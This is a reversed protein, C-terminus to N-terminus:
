ESVEVLNAAVLAKIDDRRYKMRHGHKTRPPMKGAAQWRRVTRVTKGLLKAAEKIPILPFAERARRIEVVIPDNLLAEDFKAKMPRAEPTMDCKRALVMLSAPASRSRTVSLPPTSPAPAARLNDRAKAIIDGDMISRYKPKLAIEEASLRLKDISKLFRLGDTPRDVLRELTGVAGHRAIMQYVRSGVGKTEKHKALLRTYDLTTSRLEAELDRILANEDDGVHEHEEFVTPMVELEDKLLENSVALKISETLGLSRRAALRRVLQDTDRDSIHIPPM